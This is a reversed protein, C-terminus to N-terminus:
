PLREGAVRRGLAEAARSLRFLFGLSIHARDAILQPDEGNQLAAAVASRAADPEPAIVAHRILQEKAPTIIKEIEEHICALDPSIWDDPPLPTEDAPSETFGAMVPFSFAEDWPPGMSLCEALFFPHRLGTRLALNGKPTPNMDTDLLGLQWLLATEDALDLKLGSATSRLQDRLQQYEQTIHRIRKYKLQRCIEHHPCRECPFLAAASKLTQIRRRAWKVARKHDVERMHMEAQDIEIALQRSRLILSPALRPSGCAPDPLLEELESLLEELRDTEGSPRQRMGLPLDVGEKLGRNAGSALALVAPTTCQFRSEVANSSSLDMDKVAVMEMQPGPVLVICGAEQADSGEVLRRIRHFERASVPTPHDEGPRRTRSTIMVISKVRANLDQADIPTTFV